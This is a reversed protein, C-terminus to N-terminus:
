IENGKALQYLKKQASEDLQSQQWMQDMVDLRKRIESIKGADNNATMADVLRNFISISFEKATVSDITESVPEPELQTLTTQSSVSPNLIASSSPPPPLVPQSTLTVEPALGTATSPQYKATSFPLPLGEATTKVNSNTVASGSQMPFAVRKNLNTRPKAAVPAPATMSSMKPPDNWGPEYTALVFEIKM